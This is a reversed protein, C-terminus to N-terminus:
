DFDFFFFENQTQAERPTVTVLPTNKSKKLWRQGARPGLGNPWEKPELNNQFSSLIWTKPARSHSELMDTASIISLIGFMPLFKLM